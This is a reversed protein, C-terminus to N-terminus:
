TAVDIFDSVPQSQFEDSGAESIADVDCWDDV